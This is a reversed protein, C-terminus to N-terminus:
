TTTPFSPCCRVSVSSVRRRALVAILPLILPYLPQSSRHMTASVPGFIEEQMAKGHPGSNMDLVTPSVWRAEVDVDGGLVVEEKHEEIIGKLRATHRESVIRGLDPSAKPDKGFFQEVTAACASLFAAKISSHVYAYDPSICTQGQNIHKGWVVRRAALKLDAGQDVIVPSKGGLELCVPTLHEAAARAVIRGVTESGTFFIFDWRERLLATTEAIAGEVCTVASPDLYRPILSALLSSVAPTLESPKVVACNGACLAACLPLVTLQVPYNFPGIILVVGYPERVIYSSAPSIGLPTPVHEPAMWGQLQSAVKDVEAALVAVEYGAAEFLPKRLDAQLAAM